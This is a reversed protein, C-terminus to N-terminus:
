FFANMLVYTISSVLVSLSIGWLMDVIVMPMPWGELTALNTLDYTAYTVLGYLAGMILASSFSQNTLAPYIVFIVMGAIFIIYFLIAAAWNVSKTMLFGIQKRYFPAAVVGIWILDIVMFVAFAVFFTILM